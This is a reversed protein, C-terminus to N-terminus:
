GAGGPVRLGEVWAKVNEEEEVDRPKGFQAEGQSGLVDVNEVVLTIFSQTTMKRVNNPLPVKTLTPRFTKIVLIGNLFSPLSRGPYKRHCETLM